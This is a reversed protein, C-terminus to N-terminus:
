STGTIIYWDLKDTFIDSITRGIRVDDFVSGFIRRIEDENEFYFFTQGVRMDGDRGILFLNKGIKESGVLIKHTPGTTSIFIRGGPKLKSRYEILAAMIADEDSEYHLVNWSVLFEFQNGPFPISTNTGESLVCDIGRSRWNNEMFDCIEQKVETGFIKLGLSEYFPFNVGSGVGVELLRKGAYSIEYEDLYPGKMMRILTEQPWMKLKDASQNLYFDKWKDYPHM